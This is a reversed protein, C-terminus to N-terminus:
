NETAIVSFRFRVQALTRRSSICYLSLITCAIASRHLIQNPRDSVASVISSTFTNVDYGIRHGAAHPTFSPFAPRAGLAQKKRRFTVITETHVNLNKRQM